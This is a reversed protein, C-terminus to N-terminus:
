GRRSRLAPARAKGRSAARPRWLARSGRRGGERTIRVRWRRRGLGGGGGGGDSEDGGGRLRLFAGRLRSVPRSPPGPGRGGKLGRRGRMRRGGAPVIRPRPRAVLPEADGCGPRASVCAGSAQRASAPVSTLFTLGVGRSSLYDDMPIIVMLADNRRPPSGQVPSWALRRCGSTLDWGSINLRLCMAATRMRQRATAGGARGKPHHGSPVQVGGQRVRSVPLSLSVSFLSSRSDMRFDYLASPEYFYIRMLQVHYMGKM